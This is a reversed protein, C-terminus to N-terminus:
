AWELPAPALPSVTSQSGDFRRNLSFSARIGSQTFILRGWKVGSWALYIFEWAFCYVTVAASTAVDLVGGVAGALGSIEIEIYFSRNLWCLCSFSM